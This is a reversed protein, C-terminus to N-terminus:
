VFFQSKAVFIWIKSDFNCMKTGLPWNSGLRDINEVRFLHGMPEKIQPYLFIQEMWGNSWFYIKPGFVAFIPGFSVNKALYSCKIWYLVLFLEFFNFFNFPPKKTIHTGFSKSIIAMFILIKPGYVSLTPGFNAKKALYQFKQGM